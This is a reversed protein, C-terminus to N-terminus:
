QIRKLEVRRNEARGEKTNNDAIPQSEGYGNAQLRDGAVGKSMLYDRVAKARADSLALNHADTNQADCHGAVEIRVDPHELLSAAVRDLITKSSALLIAKDSEFNVGRLVLPKEPTPIFEHATTTYSVDGQSRNGKSDTVTV